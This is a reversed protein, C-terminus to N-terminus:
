LEKLFHNFNIAFNNLDDYNKKNRYILKDLKEASPLIKLQDCLQKYAYPTRDFNIFFDDYEIIIDASPCIKQPLMQFTEVATQRNKSTISLGQKLLILDLYLLKNQQLQHIVTKKDELSFHQTLFKIEALDSGNIKKFWVKRFFDLAINHNQSVNYNIKVFRTNPHYLKITDVHNPYKYLHYPIAINSIDQAECMDVFYLFQKKFNQNWDPDIISQSNLYKLLTGDISQMDTNDVNINLFTEHCSIFYSLFEGGSGESYDVVVLQTLMQKVVTKYHQGM